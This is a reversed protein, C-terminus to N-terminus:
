PYSKQTQVKTSNSMYLMCTTRSIYHIAIVPHCPIIYTHLSLYCTIHHSTIYQIANYRVAYRHTTNYRNFSHNMRTQFICQIYTICYRVVDELLKCSCNTPICPAHKCAGRKMVCCLVSCLTAYCLMMVYCAYTCAYRHVSMGYWTCVWM